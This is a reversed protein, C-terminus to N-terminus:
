PKSNLTHLLNKTPLIHKCKIVETILGKGHNSLDFDKYKYTYGRFPYLGGKDHVGKPTDYEM